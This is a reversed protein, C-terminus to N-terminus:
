RSPAQSTRPPTPRSGRGELAAVPEPARHSVERHSKLPQAFRRHEFRGFGPAAVPGLAATADPDRAIEQDAYVRQARLYKAPRLTNSGDAQRSGRKFM